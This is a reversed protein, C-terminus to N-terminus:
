EALELLRQNISETSMGMPLTSGGAARVRDAQAGLDFCATPLGAELLGTLVYSWTEPWISPFFGVAPSHRAILAAREDEAYPGTVFAGAETLAADDVTHGIVLFRLPRAQATAERVCDLLVDFGKAHNFAGVACVTVPGDVRPVQREQCPTEWPHVEIPVSPLYRAFRRATDESPAIVRAAGTLLTQTRRRLARVSEPREGRTEAFSAACSECASGRREGCYAGDRGILTVRPCIMAYDHLVVAYPIGLASPIGAVSPAHQRLHHVEAEAVGAQRLLALLEDMAEPLRFALGPAGGDALELRAQSADGHISRLIAVGRGAHRLEAIRHQVHREVGGGEDHTVLLTTAGPELARLFRMIDIARWAALTAGIGQSPLDPWSAALARDDRARAVAAIPGFEAARPAWLYTAPSTRVPRGARAARAAFEALAADALAYAGETFGGLLDFCGRRVFVAKTLALGTLVADFSPPAAALASAAIDGPAGDEERAIPLAVGDPGAANALAQLAGPWLRAEASIVLLDCGAAHRAAANWSAALGPATRAALFDITSPLARPRTGGDQVVIIRDAGLATLEPIRQLLDPMQAPRAAVILATGHAGPHPRRPKPPRPEMVLPSGLLAEGTVASVVRVSQIGDPVDLEARRCTTLPHDASAPAAEVVDLDHRWGPGTVALHVPEGPNGPHWAAIHLRRGVREVVGDVAQLASTRLPNGLLAAGAEIDAIPGAALDLPASWLGDGLACWAFEVAKRGSRFAVRRPDLRPAAFILRGQSWGLWGSEGHARAIASALPALTPLSDIAVESLFGGLLDASEAVRGARFLNAALSLATAFIRAHGPHLQLLAIARADGLRNLAAALQLGPVAHRGSLRWAREWWAAAARWDGDAAARSGRASALAFACDPTSM